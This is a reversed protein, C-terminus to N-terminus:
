FEDDFDSLRVLSKLKKCAWKYRFAVTKVPIGHEDGIEKFTKSNYIREYIIMRDREQLSDIAKLLVESQFGLFINGVHDVPDVLSEGMTIGERIEQDLPIQEIPALDAMKGRYKIKDIIEDDTPERGLSETLAMRAKEADRRANHLSVPTQLSGCDNQLIARGLVSNIWIYAYTSFKNGQTYEYLEAARRLGFICEGFLDGMTLCKTYKWKLIIKMILRLNSLVIKDMIRAKEAESTSPDNLQRFLEVEVEYKLVPNADLTSRLVNKLEQYESKYNATM